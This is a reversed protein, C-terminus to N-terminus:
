GRITIMGDFRTHLCEECLGGKWRQTKGKKSRFPKMLVEIVNETEAGCDICKAKPM